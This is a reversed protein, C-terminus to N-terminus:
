QLVHRPAQICEPPYWPRLGQRSFYGWGDALFYYRVIVESHDPSKNPFLTWSRSGTLGNIEVPQPMHITDFQFKDGPESKFKLIGGALRPVPDTETTAWKAVGIMARGPSKAPTWQYGYMLNPAEATKQNELTMVLGKPVRLSFEWVPVPQELETLPTKGLPGTGKIPNPLNSDHALDGIKKQAAEEAAPKAWIWLAIAGGTCTVLLALVACGAGVGIWLGKGSKTSSLAADNKGPM